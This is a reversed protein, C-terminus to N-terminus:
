CCSACRSAAASVVPSCRSTPTRRRAACRTWPRSSSPTSTGPTPTTSTRRCRRGDRGDARRLLRRDGDARRDRQLPRAEGQDRRRGGRRQGARGQGRQAGAGADLIGVSYGPSLLADGNSPQDLGAMIKLVTSKGAGNPGVVGIKAGPFFRCPSTTSSSRTATPRARRACPTSSSRWATWGLRRCPRRESDAPSRPVTRRPARPWCRRGAAAELAGDLGRRQRRGGRRTPRRRCPTTETRRGAVRGSGGARSSAEVFETAVRRGTAKTFTGVGRTLDHGM